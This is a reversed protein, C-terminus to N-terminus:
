IVTVPQLQQSFNRCDVSWLAVSRLGSDSDVTWVATVSESVAHVCLVSQEATGTTSDTSQPTCQTSYQVLVTSQQYQPLSHYLATGGSYHSYRYLTCVTCEPTEFM